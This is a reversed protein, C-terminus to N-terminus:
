VQKRFQVATMGIKDKFQRMFHSANEYGCQEAIEQIRLNTTKLLEKAKDKIMQSTLKM